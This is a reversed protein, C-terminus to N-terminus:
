NSLHKDIGNEIFDEFSKYIVKEVNYKLFIPKLNEEVINNNPDAIIVKKVNIAERFLVKNFLEENGKWGIIILTEVKSFYHKMNNFHRLPMTFEDKDRYPLLLAPFYNNISKDDILQIKSKDITFKGLLYKNLVKEHGWTKWDIMNEHNGLLEFYLQFFNINKDFLWNAIQNGFESTDPFKWGWNCSGHPKFICLPSDNINVYDDLSNLPLNFQESLFNELITDQNFSVFAFKKFSRWGKSNDISATYIKQIKNALKAYLNNTFYNKTVKQTVENLIEQLYYQINIHRQMVVENNERYINEWELEFIEEINPNSQLIPLSQKVGQYKCYFSQFRGDFLAPGLPPRLTDKEFIYQDRGSVCNASAGAGFLFMIKRDYDGYWTDNNHFKGQPNFDEDDLVMQVAEKPIVWGFENIRRFSKETHSLNKYEKLKDFPIIIKFNEFGYEEFEAGAYIEGYKTYFYKLGKRM